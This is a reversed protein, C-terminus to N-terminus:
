FHYSFRIQHFNIGPNPDDIGANSLHQYRYGLDYEARDGFRIGAGIHDGFQFNTSFQRQQTINTDTLLHAGVGIEAYPSLGSTAGSQFRFVPTISFDGIDNSDDSHWYGAQADWYGGLFWSGVEFWKVGWDWQVGIRALNVDGNNNSSHGGEISISDIGLDIAQANVTPLLLLTTILFINRKM